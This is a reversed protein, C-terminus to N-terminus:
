DLTPFLLIAPPNVRVKHKWIGPLCNVLRLLMDERGTSCGPTLDEETSWRGGDSYTNTSHSFFM